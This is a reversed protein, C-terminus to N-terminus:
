SSSMEQRVYKGWHHGQNLRLAIGGLLLNGKRAPTKRIQMHPNISCIMSVLTRETM